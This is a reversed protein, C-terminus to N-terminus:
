SHGISSGGIGTSLNNTHLASALNNGHGHHQSGTYHISSHQTAGSHHGTTNPHHGQGAMKFLPNNNHM